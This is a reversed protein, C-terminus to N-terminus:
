IRKYINNDYKFPFVSMNSNFENSRVMYTKNKFPVEMKLWDNTVPQPPGTPNTNTSASNSASAPMPSEM